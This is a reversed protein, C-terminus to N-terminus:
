LDSVLESYLLTKTYKICLLLQIGFAICLSIRRHLEYQVCKHELSQRVVNTVQM